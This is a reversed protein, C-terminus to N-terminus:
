IAGFIGDLLNHHAVNAFVVISYKGLTFIAVSQSTNRSQRGFECVDRLDLIPL